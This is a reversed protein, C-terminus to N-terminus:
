PAGLGALAEGDFRFIRLDDLRRGGLRRYFAIAPENWDLVSFELRACGRSAARRGVERLLATGVGRGRAEERVFLDELWLSARGSWSGYTTFYLAFGVPRGGIEALVCEFPPRPSQMQRRLNEPTNHVAHPANVFDALERVFAHVTEADEAVADRLTLGQSDERGREPDSERTM